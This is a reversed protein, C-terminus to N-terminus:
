RVVGMALLMMEGNIPEYGAGERAQGKGAAQKCSWWPGSRDRDQRRHEGACGEEGQIGQHRSSPCSSPSRSTTSPAGQDRRSHRRRHRAPAQSHPSNTEKRSGGFYGEQANKPVVHDLSNKSPEQASPVLIRNQWKPIPLDQHRQFYRRLYANQGTSATGTKSGM